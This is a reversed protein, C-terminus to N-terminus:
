NTSMQIFGIITIRLMFICILFNNESPLSQIRQCYKATLSCFHPILYKYSMSYTKYFSRKILSNLDM